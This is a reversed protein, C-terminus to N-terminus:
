NMMTGSDLAASRVIQTPLPVMIIIMSRSNPRFNEIVFQVCFLISQLWISTVIETFYVNWKSVSFCVLERGRETTFWRDCFRCEFRPHKTITHKWFGTFKSYRTTIPKVYQILEKNVTLPEIACTATSRFISQQRTSGPTICNINGPFLMTDPCVSALGRQSDFIRDCLECEFQPPHVDVNHKIHNWPDKTLLNNTSLAYAGVAELGGQNRFSRNCLSCYPHWPANTHQLLASRTSFRRNNCTSQPCVFDM